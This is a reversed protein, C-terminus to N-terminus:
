FAMLYKGNIQGAPSPLGGMPMPDVVRSTMPGPASPMVGPGTGSYGAPLTANALPALAPTSTTMTGMPRPAANFAPRVGRAADVHPAQRGPQANHWARGQGQQRMVAQVEQPTMQVRQGNLDKYLTPLAGTAGPARGAQSPSLLSGLASGMSFLSSAAQAPAAGAPASMTAPAAPAASPISSDPAGIWSGNANTQINQNPIYGIGPIMTSNNKIATYADMGEGPFWGPITSPDTLSWAPGGATTMAGSPTQLAYTM